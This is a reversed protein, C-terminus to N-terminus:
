LLIYGLLLATASVTVNDWDPLPLSEVLMSGVVVVFLRGAAVRVRFWGWAYFLNLLPVTVAM